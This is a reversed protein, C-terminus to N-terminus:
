EALRYVHEDNKEKMIGSGIVEVHIQGAELATGWLRIWGDHVVIVSLLAPSYDRIWDAHQKLDITSQRTAEPGSGPHSHLWCALHTDSLQMAILARALRQPDARVHGASHDGTVEFTAGLRVADGTRRGAAVLMREAPFLSHHAQYFLDAPVLVRKAPASKHSTSSDVPLPPIEAEAEILHKLTRALGQRAFRNQPPEAQLTKHVTSALERLTNIASEHDPASGNVLRGVAAQTQALCLLAPYVCELEGPHDSLNQLAAAEHSYEKALNGRLRRLAAETAKETTQTRRWLLM